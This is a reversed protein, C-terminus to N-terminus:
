LAGEKAAKRTQDGAARIEDIRVSHEDDHAERYSVSGAAARERRVAEGEAMHERWRALADEILQPDVCWDFRQGRDDDVQLHWGDEDCYVDVSDIM